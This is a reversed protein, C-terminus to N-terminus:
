QGAQELEKVFYVREARNPYGALRAYERYGLRAYFEPAQFTMTDLHIRFCGRQRAQQEARRLLQAGIGQGRTEPRVWMLDIYLDDWLIQGGCAGLLEGSPNHAYVHVEGMRADNGTDAAHAFLGAEAIADDNEDGVATATYIADTANQVSALNPAPHQSTM